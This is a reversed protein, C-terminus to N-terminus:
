RGAPAAWLDALREGASEDRARGYGVYEIGPEGSLAPLLRWYDVVRVPRAAAAFAAADLGRFAPDPNTILVVRAGQLCAEVSDVLEVRADAAGRATGNALPDFARVQAGAAAMANALALGQSEEVVHSAPKYSLGLVAVRAGDEIGDLARQALAAPLSRNTRDTADAIPADSGVARAIFSLAQNDRPFCPGGYGLAGTLYRAGIRSDMGLARTVADVDGGPLRDCIEALMNAFTIKTTVYTNVAVKALEANEISMRAAPAQNALIGAYAAELADGSREDYEGILTFDPHLFDRIVSGLAIFEPSYCVGFDVGARKGSHEELLPILGYRTAGPLVTSTMVVLHYGSKDRLARGIGAFAERAYKIDFSGDPASPTPIVVFTAESQHVAEAYDLTASIRERHAAITEELATEQVPAHGANVAEVAAPIVDVGIVRHGRSAIAAAMSAGLKGLGVISYSGM